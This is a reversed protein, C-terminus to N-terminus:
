STCQISSYFLKYVRQFDDKNLKSNEEVWFFLFSSQKSMKRLYIKLILSTLEHSLTVKSSLVHILKIGYLTLLAEKISDKAIRSQWTLNKSM